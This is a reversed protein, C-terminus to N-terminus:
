RSSGPPSTWTRWRCRMIESRRAGSHAALCVLPYVWPPGPKAKVAALLDELEDASLYLSEWVEAPDAGAAVRREAEDLTMFPLKETAKPFRLGKNPFRGATLGVTEGLEM